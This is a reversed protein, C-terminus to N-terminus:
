RDAEVLTVANVGGFGFSNVQGLRPACRVPSGSVLRLCRAEPVPTRLGHIPPVEGTALCRLAVDLSMLASAGSTHGLAGKLGTVWPNGGRDVLVRRLATAEVVDNLATGTGHSVVVDVDSPARGARVLADTMARAIGDLSPATEHYADCCVATGLLRALTPGRWDDRVVLVAAAGEGLLVGTRDVDFPRVARTREPTVRGIMALMSATLGDAGAAVVADAQGGNVLDEALALAHGSASCANSITLVPGFAPSLARVATTFHLLAPRTPQGRVAWREVARLERLGTGVLVPVRGRVPEVDALLETLCDVLWASGALAPEDGGAPDRIQYGYGVNVSDPDVHRLPGVGSEGRLLRAFTETGDGLCTRVASAAIVAM